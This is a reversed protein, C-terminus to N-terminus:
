PKLILKISSAPISQSRTIKRILEALVVKQLIILEIIVRQHWYVKQVSIKIHM